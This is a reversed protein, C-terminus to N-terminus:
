NHTNGLRLMRQRALEEVRRQKDASRNAQQVAIAAAEREKRTRDLEVELMNLEEKLRRKRETLKELAADAKKLRKSWSAAEESLARTAEEAESLAATAKELASSTAVKRVSPVAQLRPQGPAPRKEPKAGRDASSAPRTSPVPPPVEPLEGLIEPVAVAGDLDVRDVGDSSLVRLLQGSRVAAAAGADATAARLTEEVEGAVADSIKRGQKESITRLAEMIKSLVRRREQGLERMAGAELSNQATRMSQGLETLQRVADPDHLALMNVAWAAVSPKPLARVADALTRDAPAASKAAATRAAVFEDLPLAYLDRAINALKGDMPQGEGM